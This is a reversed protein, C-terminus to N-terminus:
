PNVPERQQTSEWHQLLRAFQIKEMRSMEAFRVGIEWGSEELLKGTRVIEAVARVAQQSTPSIFVVELTDSRLALENPLYIRAGGASIDRCEGTIWESDGVARLRVQMRCRYREHQRRQQFRFSGNVCVVIQGDAPHYRQVVAEATYIGKGGSVAVLVNVGARVLGDHVPQDSLHIEMLPRVMQALKGHLAVPINGSRFHIEVPDGIQFM